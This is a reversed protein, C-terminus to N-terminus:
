LHLEAVKAKTAESWMFSDMNMPLARIADEALDFKTLFRQLSLAASQLEGLARDRAEDDIEYLAHKAHTVYLLAGRRNRAARYLSAQRVHNARPASPCAKTTKLDVDIEDFAFDLYGVVPVSVGDLWYEVKFQSAVVPSPAKWKACQQVMPTILKREEEIHDAIEGATNMAFNSLAMDVAEEKGHLYALMGTEVASGRAMAAGTEDKVGALYRITWLGPNELWLNLSSPSLHRIGHRELASM